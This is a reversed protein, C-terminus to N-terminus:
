FMQKSGMMKYLVLAINGKTERNKGDQGRQEWLRLTSFILEGKIKGTAKLNEIKGIKQRRRM